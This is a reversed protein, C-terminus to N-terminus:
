EASLVAGRGGFDRPEVGGSVAVSGRVTMGKAISVVYKAHDLPTM